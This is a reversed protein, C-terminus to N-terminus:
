EDGEMEDLSESLRDLVEATGDPFADTTLDENDTTTLLTGWVEASMDQVIEDADERIDEDLAGIIAYRIAPNHLSVLLDYVNEGMEAEYAAREDGQAVLLLPILHTVGLVRGYLENLALVATEAEVEGNLAERRRAEADWENTHLYDITDRAEKIQGHVKPLAQRAIKTAAERDGRAARVLLRSDGLAGM